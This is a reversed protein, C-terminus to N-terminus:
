YFVYRTDNKGCNAANLLIDVGCIKGGGGFHHLQALPKKCFKSVGIM